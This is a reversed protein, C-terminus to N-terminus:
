VIVWQQTNENWVYRNSNVPMATPPEWQCTSSNLTWSPFPKPSIFASKGNDYTSGIIAFTQPTGIPTIVYVGQQTDVWEQTAIIISVVIGNEIKAFESMKM